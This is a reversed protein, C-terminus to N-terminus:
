DETEIEIGFLALVKRKASAFLGPVDLDPAARAADAVTHLRRVLRTATSEDPTLGAREEVRDRLRMKARRDPVGSDADDLLLGLTIRDRETLDLVEIAATIKDQLGSLRQAVDEAPDPVTPGHESAGSRVIERALQSIREADRKRARQIDICTNRLVRFFFPRFSGRTESYSALVKEWTASVADDASDGVMGRATARAIGRLEDDVASVIGEFRQHARAREDGLAWARAGANVDNMPLAVDSTSV